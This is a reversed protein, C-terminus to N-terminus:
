EYLIESYKFKQSDFLYWASYDTVRTGDSKLSGPLILGPSLFYNAAQDITLLTTVLDINYIEDATFDYIFSNARMVEWPKGQFNVIAPEELYDSGAISFNPAESLTDFTYYDGVAVLDLGFLSMFDSLQGPKRERFRFYGHDCRIQM